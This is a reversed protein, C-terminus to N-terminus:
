LCHDDSIAKLTMDQEYRMKVVKRQKNNLAENLVSELNPVYLVPSAKREDEDCLSFAPSKLVDKWLNYPWRDNSEVKCVEMM